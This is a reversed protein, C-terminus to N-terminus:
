SFSRHVGIRDGSSRKQSVRCRGYGNGKNNRAAHETLIRRAIPNMDGRNTDAVSAAAVDHM